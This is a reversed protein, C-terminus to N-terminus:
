VCVCVGAGLMGFVALFIPNVTNEGPLKFLEPLLATSAQMMNCVYLHTVFPDNFMCLNTLLGPLLVMSMQMM